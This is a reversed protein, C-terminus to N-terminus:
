EENEENFQGLIRQIIGEFFRDSFGGLFALIWLLEPRASTTVSITGTAGSLIFIGSVVALYALAGMIIGIIPRAILWKVEDSVRGPRSKYFRYLIAALSGVAAWVLVSVPVGLIPIATTSTWIKGGYLVVAVISVIYVGIIVPVIWRLRSEGMQAKQEKAVIVHVLRLEFQVEPLVKNIDDPEAGYLRVKAKQLRRLCDQQVKGQDDFLDSVLDFYRELKASLQERADIAQPLDFERAMQTQFEKTYFYHVDGIQISAGEGAIGSPPQGNTPPAVITPPTPPLQGDWVPIPSPPAPQLPYLYKDTWASSTIAASLERAFDDVSSFRDKPETSLAQDIVAAVQEPFGTEYVPSPGKTFLPPPYQYEGWPNNGLLMEYSLVALSFQDTEHGLRKGQAQEPSMYYPTGVIPQDEASDATVDQSIGFDALVVRTGDLFVNGPKVDCHIFNNEHLYTLGTAIQQIISNTDKPSFHADRRFADLLTGGSLYELVLCDSDEYKAVDFLEIINPHKIRSLIEIERKGFEVANPKIRKICVSRNQEIWEALFILSHGGEHIQDLLKYKGQEGTITVDEM